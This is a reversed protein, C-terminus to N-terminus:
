KCKFGDDELSKKVSDYKNSDSKAEKQSIEETQVVTVKKGKTTIKYEDKGEYYKAFSKATTEDEFTATITTETKRAYDDKFTIVAKANMSASGFSQDQTCTLKKTKSCGTLLVLAVVMICVSLRKKM